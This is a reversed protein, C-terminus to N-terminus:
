IMIHTHTYVICITKKEGMVTLLTPAWTPFSTWCLAANLLQPFFYVTPSIGGNQPWLAVSCSPSSSPLVSHLWWRNPCLQDGITGPLSLSTASAMSQELLRPSSSSSPWLPASLQLMHCVRLGNLVAARLRTTSVHYLLLLLLLVQHKIKSSFTDCTCLHSWRCSIKTKGGPHSLFHLVCVHVRHVNM